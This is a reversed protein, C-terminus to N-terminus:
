SLVPDQVVTARGATLVARFTAEIGGGTVRVAADGEAAIGTAFGRVLTDRLTVRARGSAVVGDAGHGELRGDLVVVEADEAAEVGRAVARAALDIVEVRATGTGRLATGGAVTVRELEPAAAEGVDIAALGASALDLAMWTGRARGHLFLASGGTDRVRAGDVTPDADDTAEVGTLGARVVELERLTPRCAGRLFVGGTAAQIRLRSLTPAAEGGIEVAAFSGTTLAVAHFRGGAHDRFVLGGGSATVELGEVTPAARDLLLMGNRARAVRCRRWLPAADGAVVFATEQVDAVVGELHPQGADVRLGHGEPNEVRLDIVRADAALVLARPGGGRVVGGTLTVAKEVRVGGPTVGEIRITDGAEAAALAAALDPHDAPVHLTRSSM